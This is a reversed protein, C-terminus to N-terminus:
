SSASAAELIPAFKEESLSAGGILGGNVDKINLLEAANQGNMSGGYLIRVNAGADGMLSVLKTRIAGHMAGVDENSPVRGTGIAWVPEYAVALKDADGDGLIDAPLSGAIQGLVVEEAQGSDRQEETEGVCIIATLGGNIAARAKGNVDSDSEFQDTRRESHGVIVANAGADALMDVSICGTHAGSKQMHCDQGGVIFSGDAGAASALSVLTAPVCLGADVNEYGSATAAIKEIEAIDAKQGNMKWNGLILKQM